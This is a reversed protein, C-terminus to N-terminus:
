FLAPSCVFFVRAPWPHHPNWNHLAPRMNKIKGNHKHFTYNMGLGPDATLWEGRLAFFDWDADTVPGDAMRVGWDGPCDPAHKDPPVHESRSPPVDFVATCHLQRDDSLRISRAELARPDNESYGGRCREDDGTRALAGAPAMLASAALALLLTLLGIRVTSTM